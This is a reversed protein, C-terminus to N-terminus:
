DSYGFSSLEANRMENVVLTHRTKTSPQLVDTPYLTFLTSIVTVYYRGPTKARSSFETFGTFISEKVHFRYKLIQRSVFSSDVRHWSWDNWASFLEM